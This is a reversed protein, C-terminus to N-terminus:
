SVDDLEEDAIEELVTKNRDIWYSSNGALYFISRTLSELVEENSVGPLPELEFVVRVRM